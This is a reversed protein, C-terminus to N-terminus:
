SNKKTFGVKEFFKQAKINWEDCFCSIIPEDVYNLCSKIFKEGTGKERRPNIYLNYLYNDAFWVHGLAGENDRLLFLIDGQKFRLSATNLDWMMDWKLTENFSEISEKIYLFHVFSNSDDVKIVGIGEYPSKNVIEYWVKGEL